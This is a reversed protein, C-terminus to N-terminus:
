AVWQLIVVIVIVIIAQGTLERYVSGGFLTSLGQGMGPQRFAEMMVIPIVIFARGSLERDMAASRTSSRNVLLSEDPHEPGTPKGRGQNVACCGDRPLDMVFGPKFTLVRVDECARGPISLSVDESNSRETLTSSTSWFTQLGRLLSILCRLVSNSRFAVSANGTFSSQCRSGSNCREHFLGKEDPFWDETELNGISANLIPGFATQRTWRCLFAPQVLAVACIATLIRGPDHLLPPARGQSPRRGQCRYFSGTGAVEADIAEKEGIEQCSTSKTRTPRFGYCFAQHPRSGLRGLM